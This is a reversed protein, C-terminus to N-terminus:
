LKKIVKTLEEAFEASMTRMSAIRTRDGAFKLYKDRLVTLHAKVPLTNPKETAKVEDKLLMRKKIDQKLQNIEVDIEQCESILKRKIAILEDYTDGQKVYQLMQRNQSLNAQIQAKKIGLNSKKAQMDLITHQIDNSDAM